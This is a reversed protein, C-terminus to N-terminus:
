LCICFVCLLNYYNPNILINLFVHQKQNVRYIWIFLDRTYISLHAVLGLIGVIRDFCLSEDNIEIWQETNVQIRIFNPEALDYM